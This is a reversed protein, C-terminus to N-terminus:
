MVVRVDVLPELYRALLKCIDPVRSDGMSWVTAALYVVAQVCPAPRLAESFSPM